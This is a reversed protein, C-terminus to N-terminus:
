EGEKLCNFNMAWEPFTIYVEQKDWHVGSITGIIETEGTWPSLKVVDRGIMSDVMERTIEGDYGYFCDKVPMTGYMM